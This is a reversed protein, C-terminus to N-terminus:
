SPPQRRGWVTVARGREVKQVAVAEPSLYVLYDGNPIRGDKGVLVCAVGRPGGNPPKFPQCMIDTGRVFAAANSAVLRVLGPPERLPTAKGIGPPAGRPQVPQYHKFVIGRNARSAVSLGRAAILVEYSRRRPRFNYQSTEIFCRLALVTSPLPPRTVAICAVPSGAILFADNLKHLLVLERQSADASAPTLVLVLGAVLLLRRMELRPM